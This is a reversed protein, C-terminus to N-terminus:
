GCLKRSLRAISLSAPRIQKVAAVLFAVIIEGKVLLMLGLLRPSREPRSRDPPQM